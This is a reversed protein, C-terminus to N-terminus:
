LGGNLAKRGSPYSVNGTEIFLMGQWPPCNLPTSNVPALIIDTGQLGPFARRKGPTELYSSEQDQRVGDCLPHTSQPTVALVPM